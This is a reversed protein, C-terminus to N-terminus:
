FHETRVHFKLGKKRTLWVKVGAKELLAIVEDNEPEDTSSCIVADKPVFCDLLMKVPKKDRGHHPVKLWTYSNGNYQKDVFQQMREKQADGAFLLSDEKGEVSIILSLNNDQNKDFVASLPPYITFLTDMMSFSETETVIIQETGSTELNKLLNRYEDSDETGCTTYCKKVRVAKLIAPAGGIHDKDYHTLILADLSEIGKEKLTDLLIGADGSEGTDIMVAQKGNYMIFADACHALKPCLLTLGDKENKIVTNQKKEQFHAKGLFICLVLAAAMMFFVPYKKRNKM